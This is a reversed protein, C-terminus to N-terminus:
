DLEKLTAPGIDKFTLITRGAHDKVFQEAEARTKLPILERGMPGLVDGGLVFFAAEADVLSLGYYETVYIADVESRTRAPAYTKLGFLFKFLDKPGDFFVVSGDRFIAEALFDPYPAVFM